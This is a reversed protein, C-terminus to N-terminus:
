FEYLKVDKSEDRPLRIPDPLRLSMESRIAGLPVNKTLDLDCIVRSNEFGVKIKQGQFYHKSM